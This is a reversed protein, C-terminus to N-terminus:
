PMRSPCSRTHAMEGPVRIPQFSGTAASERAALCMATSLLGDQLTAKSPAQGRIVHLFNKVLVHDGGHHGEAVPVHIQDVAQGHHEIVRISETYWDFDLTAYYGTIRAGRRGASRRSVFNQTYTLQTADDYMVMASGADQNRISESFACAHDGQGMGGDDGRKLINIPSEPCLETKTCQSCRLDAPEHGGYVKRTSTAAIVMPRADLLHNIYDFDHTAKQLWLGGTTEHDRYWQGFYVGGYPVDNFAVVQNITGLRGSQVIENVRQCLPTMRLPFSVVVKEDRDRFAEALEELQATTISVPKELFLPLGLPALKVAIPTHLNCRTGVIWGDYDDAHRILEDTTDVFRTASFDVGENKLNARAVDPYPDAVASLVVERDIEMALKILSAARLGLGIVALRIM